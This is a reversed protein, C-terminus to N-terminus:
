ESNRKEREISRLMSGTDATEAYYMVDLSRLVSIIETKVPENQSAPLVSLMKDPSNMGEYQINSGTFLE